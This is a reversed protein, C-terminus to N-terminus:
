LLFVGLTAQLCLPISLKFNWGILPQYSKLKIISENNNYIINLYISPHISNINNVQSSNEQVIYDFNIYMDTYFLYGDYMNYVDNFKITKGSNGCAECTKPNKEIRKLEGNKLKERYHKECYGRKKAEKNCNIELCKCM